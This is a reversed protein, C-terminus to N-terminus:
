PCDPCRQAPAAGKELATVVKPRAATSGKFVVQWFANSRKKRGKAIMTKIKPDSTIMLMAAEQRSLKM